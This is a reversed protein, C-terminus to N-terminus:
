ASSGLASGVWPGVCWCQPCVIWLGRQLPGLSAWFLPLLFQPSVLAVPAFGGRVVCTLHPYLQVGAHGLVLEVTEYTQLRFHPVM